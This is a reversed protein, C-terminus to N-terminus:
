SPELGSNVSSATSRIALWLPPMGLFMLLRQKLARETARASLFPSIPASATRSTMSSQTQAPTLDDFSDCNRLSELVM